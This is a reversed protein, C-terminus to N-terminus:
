TLLVGQFSFVFCVPQTLHTSIYRFYRLHSNYQECISTDGHFLGTIDQCRHNDRCKHNTSHFRDFWFQADRFYVSARNLILVIIMLHCAKDYYIEEPPKEMYKTCSVFADKPCEAGKIIHYGYCHGHIPCFWVCIFGIKTHPHCLERGATNVM